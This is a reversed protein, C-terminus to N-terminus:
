LLRLNRISKLIKERRKLLEFILVFIFAFFFFVLILYAPIPLFHVIGSCWELDPEISNLLKEAETYNGFIWKERAQQLINLTMNKNTLEIVCNNVLYEAEKIRDLFDINREYSLKWETTFYATLPSIIFSGILTIIIPIWFKQNDTLSM